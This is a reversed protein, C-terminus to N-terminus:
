TFFIEDAWVLLGVVIVQAAFRTKFLTVEFTVVGDIKVVIGCISPLKQTHRRRRRCRRRREQEASQRRM